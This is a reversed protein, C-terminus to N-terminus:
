GFGEVEMFVNLGPEMSMLTEDPREYPEEGEWVTGSM